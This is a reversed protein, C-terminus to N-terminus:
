PQTVRQKKFSPISQTIKHFNYETLTAEKSLWLSVTLSLKLSCVVFQSGSCLPLFLKYSYGCAILYFRDCAEKKKKKRKQTHTHSLHKSDNVQYTFASHSITTHIQSTSQLHQQTKQPFRNAQTSVEHCCGARASCSLQLQQQIRNHQPPLRLSTLVPPTPSLIPV